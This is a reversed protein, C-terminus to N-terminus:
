LGRLTGNYRGCRCEHKVVSESIRTFVIPGRCADCIVNSTGNAFFEEAAKLFIGEKADDHPDSRTQQDNM